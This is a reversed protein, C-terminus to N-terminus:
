LCKCSVSGKAKLTALIEDWVKKNVSDAKIKQKQERTLEYRPQKCRVPSATVSTDLQCNIIMVYFYNNTLINSVLVREKEIKRERKEAKKRLLVTKLNRRPLWQNLTAM